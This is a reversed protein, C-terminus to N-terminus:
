CRLRCTDFHNCATLTRLVAVHLRLHRVGPECHITMECPLSTCGGPLVAGIVYALQNQFLIATTSLTTVPKALKGARRPAGQRPDRGGPLRWRLPRDLPSTRAACWSCERM